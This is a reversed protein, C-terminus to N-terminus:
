GDRRAENHRTLIDQRYGESVAAPSFIEYLRNQNESIMARYRANELFLRELGAEIRAADGPPVAVGVDLGDLYGDIGTNGGYLIPVGAFLAETYVMGFTENFSPLAMALYNPLIDLLRANDVKGKLRVAGQLNMRAILSEVAQVSAESGGGVLDLEIDPHKARFAAFGRLLGSLGKRRRMDLNMISVFKREPPHIEILPRANSVINPLNRCKASIEPIRREMVPRYWASVAYVREAKQAIRRLLPLYHPKVRLVKSEAEGRISVFLRARPFHHDVIHAAAIGEFCYKHAHIVDPEIGHERALCAIRNGLRRMMPALGIGLPPAFYRLHFLRLPGDHGLDQITERSPLSIRELSMVVHHLDPTGDLLRKVAHTNWTRSPDPYDAALHLLVPKTM